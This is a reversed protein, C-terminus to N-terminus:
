PVFENSVCAVHVRSIAYAYLVLPHLDLRDNRRSMTFRVRSRSGTANEGHVLM